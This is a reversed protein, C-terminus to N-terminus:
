MDHGNAEVSVMDDTQETRRGRDIEIIWKANEDGGLHNCSMAVIGPNEAM